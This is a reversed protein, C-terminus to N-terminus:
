IKKAISKVVMKNKRINPNHIMCDAGDAPAFGPVVASSQAVPFVTHAEFTGAAPVTSSHYPEVKIV